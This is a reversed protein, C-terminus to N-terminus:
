ECASWASCVVLTCMCFTKCQWYVFTQPSTNWSKCWCFADVIQGEKKHHRAAGHKHCTQSLCLLRFVAASGASRGNVAPVKRM